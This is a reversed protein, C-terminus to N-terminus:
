QLNELKAQFAKVEVKVKDLKAIEMENNKQEKALLQERRVIANNLPEVVNNYEQKYFIDMQVKLQKEVKRVRSIFKYTSKNKLKPLIVSIIFFALGICFLGIFKYFLSNGLLFIGLLVLFLSGISNYLLQMYSNYLINKSYKAIALDDLENKVSKQMDNIINESNEDNIIDMLDKRSADKCIQSKFKSQLIEFIQDYLSRSSIFLDELAKEMTQVVMRPLPRLGDTDVKINEGKSKFVAKINSLKLNNNIFNRGWAEMDRLVPKIKDIEKTYRHKLMREEYGIIKKTEEIIQTDLNIIKSNKNIKTISQEIIKFATFLPGSLKLKLRDTQSLVNFIYDEIPKFKSKEFAEQDNNMKGQLALKSSVPFILPEFQLLKNCNEKIFAIVEEVEEPQKIDTKTLIFIIKKGWLDKIFELFQRESQTFPRDISTIFLVLDSRPIFRETIQQHELVLSNTGPTDM